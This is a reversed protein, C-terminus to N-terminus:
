KSWDGTLNAVDEALGLWEKENRKRECKIGLLFAGYLASYTPSNIDPEQGVIDRYADIFEQEYKNM